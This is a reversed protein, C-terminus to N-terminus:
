RSNLVAQMLYKGIYEVMPVQYGIYLPHKPQGDSNTGLCYPKKLMALVISARKVVPKFSGWGCLQRDSLLVMQKLYYDTFEGVSDGNSVLSKPDTSVFAYLNGMLLGGFGNRDARVIGRTITPDDKRENAVSPNLGIIMLLPQRPNWVRWLAYRYRRDDSFIAGNTISLDLLKPKTM